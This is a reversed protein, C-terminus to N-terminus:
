HNFLPFLEGNSDSVDTRARDSVIETVQALNIYKRFKMKKMQKRPISYRM